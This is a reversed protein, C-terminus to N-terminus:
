NKERYRYWFTIPDLANCIAMAMIAVKTEFLRQLVFSSKIISVRISGRVMVLTTIRAVDMGLASLGVVNPYLYRAFFNPNIRFLPIGSM